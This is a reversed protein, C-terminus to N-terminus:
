PWPRLVTTGARRASVTTTGVTYGLSVTAYSPNNTQCDAHMRQFVTVNCPARGTERYYSVSGHGLGVFDNAWVNANNVDWSGGTVGTVQTTRSTDAGPFWCRDEAPQANSESVRRGGFNVGSPTLTARFKHITPLGEADAWGNSAVTEGSPVECAKTSHFTGSQQLSNNWAGVSLHCGPKVLSSLVVAWKACSRVDPDDRGPPFPNSVRLTFNGSGTYSGSVPWNTSACGSVASLVGSIVGISNQSITWVNSEHDTWSGSASACPPSQAMVPICSILGLMLSGFAALRPTDM